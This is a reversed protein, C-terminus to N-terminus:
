PLSSELAARGEATATYIWHKFAGDITHGRQVLGRRELQDLHRNFTKSPTKNFGQQRAAFGLVWLQGDM